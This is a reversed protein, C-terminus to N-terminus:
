PHSMLKVSNAPPYVPPWFPTAAVNTTGSGDPNYTINAAGGFNASSLRVEGGTDILLADGFAAGSVSLASGSEIVLNGDDFVRVAASILTNDDFLNASPTTGPVLLLRAGTTSVMGYAVSGTFECESVICTTGDVVSVVAFAPIGPTDFSSRHLKVVGAEAFRVPSAHVTTWQDTGVVDVDRFNVFHSAGGSFVSSEIRVTRPDRRRGAASGAIEVTTDTLWSHEIALSDTASGHALVSAGGPVASYCARAVVRGHLLGTTVATTLAFRCREYTVPEASDPSSGISLGGTSLVLDRFVLHQGNTFVDVFDTAGAAASPLAIQDVAAGLTLAGVVIRNNLTQLTNGAAGTNTYVVDLHDRGTTADTQTLAYGAYAGPTHTGAIVVEPYRDVTLTSGPNWAAVGSAVTSTAALTTPNAGRVVIASPRGAAPTPLVLDAGTLTLNGSIWVTADGSWHYRGLEELAKELTALPQAASMGLNETDSGNLPDVYLAFNQPVTSADRCYMASTCKLTKCLVLNPTPTSM